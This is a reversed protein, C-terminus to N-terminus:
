FNGVCHDSPIIEAHVKIGLYHPERINVTTTLLRYRDLYSRITGRLEEDVTLRSLDGARLADFAAPVVLLDVMGPPLAGAEAGLTMEGVANCKVRAM